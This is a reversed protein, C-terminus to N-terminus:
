TVGHGSGNVGHYNTGSSCAGRYGGIIRDSGDNSDCDNPGSSRGSSMHGPGHVAWLRSIAQSLSHCECGQNLLCISLANEHDSASPYFLGTNTFVM